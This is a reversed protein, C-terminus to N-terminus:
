PQRRSCICVCIFLGLLERSQTKDRQAWKVTSLNMKVARRLARMALATSAVAIRDTQGDRQGDTQWVDTNHWFSPVYCPATQVIPYCFTKYFGLFYEGPAFGEGSIKVRVSRGRRIAALRSVNQMTAGWGYVTLYLFLIDIVSLLFEVRAKCRTM